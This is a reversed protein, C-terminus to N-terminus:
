VSIIEYYVAKGIKKRRIKNNKSLMKLYKSLTPDTINLQGRLDKYRLQGGEELFTLIRNPIDLISVNTLTKGSINRESSKTIKSLNNNLKTVNDKLLSMSEELRNMKDIIELGSDEYELKFWSRSVMDNKIEVLERYIIGLREGIDMITPIKVPRIRTEIIKNSTETKSIPISVIPEENTEETQFFSKVWSTVGM